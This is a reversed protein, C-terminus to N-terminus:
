FFEETFDNEEESGQDFKYKTKTRLYLVGLYFDNFIKRSYEATIISRLESYVLYLDGGQENEYVFDHNIRLPGAIFTARNKDENWFLRSSAILVYSKNTSYLGLLNAVSPPSKKDEKDFKFFYMGVGGFATELTPNNIILPIPLFTKSFEDFITDIEKEQANTKFILM